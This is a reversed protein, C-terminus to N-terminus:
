RTTAWSATPDALAPVIAYTGVPSTVTAATSYSATINDGNQVGVLTGTFVPDAAGYERSQDAATVTLPAPTITLTGLNTVVTYNSLRGDPDDLAVEIPYGGVPSTVDATTSYTATINDGAQLGSLSGTLPPNPAGYLRSQNDVTITLEAETVTLVGDVYAITYNPASQGSVSIPYQGVPSNTEATTTGVLEGTVIGADESNVFGTYTVTFL